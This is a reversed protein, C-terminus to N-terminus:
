TLGLANAALFKGISTKLATKGTGFLDFSAGVRVSWDKWCPVCDQAPVSRAPVFPNAPADEDPYSAHFYDYRAGGSVTLRTGTWRDRVFVGTDANLEDLRTSPTNRVTVANAVPTGASNNVFTLVSMAARNNLRNRSDGWEHNLGIKLNHT